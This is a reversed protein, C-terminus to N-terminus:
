DNSEDNAETSKKEAELSNYKELEKKVDARFDDMNKGYFKWWHMVDQHDSAIGM